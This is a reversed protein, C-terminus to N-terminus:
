PSETVETSEDPSCQMKAGSCTRSVVQSSRQPIPQVCIHECYRRFQASLVPLEIKDNEIRRLQAVRSASVRRARNCPIV